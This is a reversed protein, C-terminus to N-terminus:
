GSNLLGYLWVDGGDAAKQDDCSKNFVCDSDECLPGFLEDIQVIVAMEGSTDVV